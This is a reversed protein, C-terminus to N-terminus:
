VLLLFAVQLSQRALFSVQLDILQSLGDDDDDEDNDIM